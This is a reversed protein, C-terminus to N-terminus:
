FIVLCAGNWAVKLLSGQVYSYSVVFNARRSSKRVKAMVGGAVALLPSVSLIVLTLKWGYVFGVVFGAIFAAFFQFLLGLKDGIGKEIQDVDSNDFM